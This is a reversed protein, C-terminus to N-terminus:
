SKLRRKKKRKKRKDKVVLFISIIFGLISLVLMIVFLFKFGYINALYGGIIASIGALIYEM